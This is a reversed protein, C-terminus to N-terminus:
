IIILIKRKLFLIIFTPHFMGFILSMLELFLKWYFSNHYLVQCLEKKQKIIAYRAFKRIEKDSNKLYDSLIKVEEFLISIYKIGYDFSSTNTHQRFLILPKNIRCIMNELSIRLWLEYDEAATISNKEIFGSSLISRKILVSSTFIENGLLLKRTDIIDVENNFSDIRAKCILNNNVDIYDAISCIFNYKTTYKMQMELKNEVWLDDDDCFAIFDGKSNEIGINRIRAIDRIRGPNIYKVRSDKFNNIQFETDDDSGDDVIIIEIKNYTQELITKLTSIIINSRNYTPIIVSVLSDM